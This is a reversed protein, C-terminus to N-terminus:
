KFDTFDRKKRPRCLFRLWQCKWASLSSPGHTRSSYVIIFFGIKITGSLGRSSVEHENNNMHLYLRRRVIFKRANINRGRLM